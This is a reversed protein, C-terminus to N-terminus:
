RRALWVGVITIASGILQILHLEENLTLYSIVLALVPVLNSFNGTRGPGLRQVGYSWFINGIGISLAGSLITALWYTWGISPWDTTAASPIAVLTLGIAGVSVMMLALQLPSYRVLLPKQLNTNFAWLMAAAVCIIDGVMEYVGFEFKKGSGIIIMAVGCLSLAAGFWMNPSIREKHLRANLLVTWLPSTAMLVASNGATTMSLGIIFACQYLVSAVFGARLINRWDSKEVRIWQSRAFYIAALLGAAVVFRLSNFVFRDMKELSYKSVPYNAAWTIVVLLLLLQARLIHSRESRSM